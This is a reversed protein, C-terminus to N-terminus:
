ALKFCTKLLIIVFNAIKTRFRCFYKRVRAIHVNCFPLKGCPACMCAGRFFKAMLLITRPFIQHPTLYAGSFDLPSNLLGPFNCPPLLTRAGGFVRVPLKARGSRCGPPRRGGRRGRRGGAATARAGRRACAILPGRCLEPVPVAPRAASRSLSRVLLAGAPRRSGACSRLGFVRVPM